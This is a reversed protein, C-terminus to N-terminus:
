RTIAPLWHLKRLTESIHEQRHTSNILRAAAFQALQKRKMNRVTLRNCLAGDFMRTQTVNDHLVPKSLHRTHPLLM